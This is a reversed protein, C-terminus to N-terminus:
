WEFTFLAVTQYSSLDDAIVRHRFNLSDTMKYKTEVMNIKRWKIRLNDFKLSFDKKFKESDPKEPKYVFPKWDASSYSKDECSLTPRQDDCWATIPNEIIIVIVVCILWIRWDKIYEM